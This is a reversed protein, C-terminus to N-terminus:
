TTLAENQAETGKHLNKSFDRLVDEAVPAVFRSAMADGKSFISSQKDLYQSITQSQSNIAPLAIHYM